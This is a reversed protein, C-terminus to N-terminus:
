IFVAWQGLCCFYASNYLSPRPKPENITYGHAGCRCEYWQHQPYWRVRVHDIHLMLQKTTENGEQTPPYVPFIDM